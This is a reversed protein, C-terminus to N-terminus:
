SRGTTADSPSSSSTSCTCAPPRGDADVVPIAGIRRARMLELAEARGEGQGVAVFARTLLPGIPDDISAGGLLARRIDGDTAVGVLRGTADLALAIQRAGLDLAVM